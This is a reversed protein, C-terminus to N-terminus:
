SVIECQTKADNSTRQRSTDRHNKRGRCCRDIERTIKDQSIHTSSQHSRAPRSTPRSSTTCNVKDPPHKGWVRVVKVTVNRRQSPTSGKCFIRRHRPARPPTRRPTTALVVVTNGERKQNGPNRTHTVIEATTCIMAPSSETDSPVAATANYSRAQYM